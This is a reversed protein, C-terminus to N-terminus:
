VIFAWGIAFILAPLLNAVKIRNGFALNLGVCTILVSGVLSLNMLAANTMIPEIFKAFLTIAGEFALVPIAAFMCGKGYSTALIAVIVIDLVTKTYLISPDGYLGDEIAGLVAMAGICVTLSANVFGEIFLNDNESRSKIKLWAGFRETHYELNLWEGFLAGLGMSCILMMTGQTALKGEQIVLMQELTGAIGIFIVCIGMALMLHDQYRKEIKSAFLMGIIGGLVVGIANVISGM